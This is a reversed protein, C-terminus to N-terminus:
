ARLSKRSLAVVEEIVIPVEDTHQLVFLYDAEGEAPDIEPQAQQKALVEAFTTYPGRMITTSRTSEQVREHLVEDPIAFHVLIRVFQAPPFVDELLTKRANQSRNANCVIIHADTQTKAYEVLLQSLAHKIVNPGEQPMLREYYTHLFAAQNDQDMVVANPLEKELRRAFTTKGSHTKGVTIVALRKM